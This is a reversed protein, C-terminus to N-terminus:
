GNAPRRRLLHHLRQWDFAEGPDTKRGPAIDSHGVIDAKRLSPYASRLAQVLAALAAYQASRYPVDDAGELEIGVSFDNCAARGRHCSDGAHWARRPFPVYQTLSGDRRILAHSSVRLHMIQPFHPHADPCLRNTFLHDIWAGGFERPPLSIGHVVILDLGCGPPRLDCNPSIVRRVGRIWGSDGDIHLGEGATEFSARAATGGLETM